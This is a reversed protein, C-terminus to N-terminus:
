QRVMFPVTFRRDGWAYALTGGNTGPSVAFTFREVPAGATTTITLPVRALDEKEDYVTGWQGTQRNVILQAGQPTAITWLTYSGAPVMADGITLPASTTFMTAANAGTRWVQGYPILFGMLQRGRLSPRSYVIRLNAGGVTEVVSDTPSLVGLTATSWATATAAVDVDAVRTVVFKQTTAAGDVGLIRGRADVRARYADPSGLAFTASDTGVFNVPVQLPASAGAGLMSATFAAQGSARARMMMPELVAYSMGLLPFADKAAVRLTTDRPAILHVVVSDAGFTMEVRTPPVTGNARHADYAFSQARGDAGLTLTWHRITTAPARVVQDATITNATRTFREVAVTDSGLRVIFAGNDSAPAPMSSAPAHSCASVALSGAATLFLNRM